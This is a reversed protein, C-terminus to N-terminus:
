LIQIRRRSRFGYVKEASVEATRQELRQQAWAAAVTAAPHLRPDDHCLVEHCAALRREFDETGSGSWSFSGPVTIEALEDPSVGHDLLMTALRVWRKGLGRRIAVGLREVDPETALWAAFVEYDNKVLADFLEVDLFRVGALCLLESRQSVDLLEVVHCLSEHLYVDWAESLWDFANRSWALALKPHDDFIVRAVHNTGISRTAQVAARWAENVIASPEGDRRRGWEHRIAISRVEDDKHRLVMCRVEDPLEYDWLWAEHSNLEPILSLAACALSGNPNTFALAAGIGVEAYEQTDMLQSAIRTGTRSCKEFARKVFPVILRPPIASATLADIWEDPCDSHIALERALCHIPATGIQEGFGRAQEIFDALLAAGDKPAVTSLRRGFAEALAMQQKVEQEWGKPGAPEGFLSEYDPDVDFSIELEALDVVRAAWSRTAERSDHAELLCQLAMKGASQLSATAASPIPRGATLMPPHCWSELVRRVPERHQLDLGGLLHIVRPWLAGLSALFVPDTSMSRSISYSRSDIPSSYAGEHKPNMAMALLLSCVYQNVSEGSCREEVTSILLERRELSETPQIQKHGLWESVGQSMADLDHQGWKTHRLDNPELLERITERPLQSLLGCITIPLHRRHRAIIARACEADVWSFHIWAERDIHYGLADEIMQVPVDGGRQRAACLTRVLETANNCHPLLPQIDLSQAGGFFVKAVLLARLELPHVVLQGFYEEIIGGAGLSTVTERVYVPSIELANAVANLPMGAEGGIGFAALISREQESDEVQRGTLLQRALAEGSWVASVEGLRCTEALTAALGPKGAAQDLLLGILQDSGSIGCDALIRAIDKRTLPELLMVADTSLSLETRCREDHGPWCNAHIAFPLGLETRLHRLHALTSPNAHADDVVVCRIDTKRLDDAIRGRDSDILFLCHGSLALMQHLFTKGSGPQGVVLLDGDHSRIQDLEQERGIVIPDNFTRSSLPLASLAPPNGPIGLLELRWEPSRYLRGVFDHQDHINVLQVGHEGAAAQINNRRKQSLSERAAVVALKLDNPHKALYKTLNRRVNSLVDKATTTILPYPGELSSFAGDFGDDSGGEIPVLAAKYTPQLLDVACREFLTPDIQGNIAQKIANYLPDRNMTSVTEPMEGPIAVRAPHCELAAAGLYQQLPVPLQEINDHSGRNLGDGLSQPKCIRIVQDNTADNRWPSESRDSLDTISTGGRAYGDSREGSGM